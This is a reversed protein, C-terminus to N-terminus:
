SAVRAVRVRRRIASKLSEPLVWIWYIPAMVTGGLAAGVLLCYHPEQPFLMRAVVLCVALPIGALLPGPLVHAVYRRVPLNLVRCAYWPTLLGGNVTVPLGIAVAVGVLGQDLPGMLLSALVLSSLAVGAEWLAPRGHRDMGMLITFAGMQAIALLHGAALLTLASQQVYNPGMWLHVLPGGLIVLVLVGPVAAYLGYRSSALLLKQLEGVNGRAHLHSSKPIFVFSYQKVVNLLHLVLARQRSFVAIGAPGMFWGVLISNGQYMCSRSLIQVMHKTSFVLSQRAASWQFLRTSIHLHPCVRWAAVIYLCNGLLTLVVVSAALAVVGYGLILLLLIAAIQLIDRGGRILNFLDFRQMGSLVSSSASALMEFVAGSTILFAAWQATKLVGPALGPLLWPVALALGAAILLGILSDVLIIVACSSLIVNLGQWDELTRHRAVERSMPSALGMQVWRVYVVLSWAFDWIGLLEQGLKRDIARPVIFGSAVVVGYWLWNFVVGATVSNARGSVKRLTEPQVERLDETEAIESM